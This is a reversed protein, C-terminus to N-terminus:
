GLGDVGTGSAKGNRDSDLWDNGMLVGFTSGNVGATNKYTNKVKGILLTIKRDEDMLAKKYGILKNSGKELEDLLTSFEKPKLSYSVNSKNILYKSLETMGNKWVEKSEFYARFQTNEREYNISAQTLSQFKILNDNYTQRTEDQFTKITSEYDGFKATFAQNQKELFAKERGVADIRDSLNRKESLLKEIAAKSKEASKELKKVLIKNEENAIELTDINARTFELEKGIKFNLEELNANALGLNKISSDLEMNEAELIGNRGSLKSNDEIIKESEGLFM